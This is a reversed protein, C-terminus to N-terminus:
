KILGWTELISETHKEWGPFTEKLFPRLKTYTTNEGLYDKMLKFDAGNPNIIFDDSEQKLDTDINDELYFGDENHKIKKGNILYDVLNNKIDEDKYPNGYKDFYIVFPSHLAKELDIDKGIKEMETRDVGDLDSPFKKAGVLEISEKGNTNENLNESGEVMKIEMMDNPGDKEIYPLDRDDIDDAEFIYMDLAKERVYKAEDMDKVFVEIFNPYPDHKYSIGRENLKEFFDEPDLANAITYYGLPSENSAVKSENTNTNEELENEVKSTANFIKKTEDKLDEETEEHMEEEAKDIIDEDVDEKETLSENSSFVEMIEEIAKKIDKERWIDNYKSVLNGLIEELQTHIEKVAGENVEALKALDEVSIDSNNIEEENPIEQEDSHVDEIEKDLVEDRESRQRHQDKESIYDNFRKLNM